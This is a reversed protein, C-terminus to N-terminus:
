VMINLVWDVQEMAVLIVMIILVMLVRVVMEELVLFKHVVVLILRFQQLVM